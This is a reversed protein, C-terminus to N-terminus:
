CDTANEIKLVWAPIHQLGASLRKQDVMLVPLIM